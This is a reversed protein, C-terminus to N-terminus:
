QWQFNQQTYYKPSADTIELLRHLGDTWARKGKLTEMSFDSAIRIPKGKYTVQDKVRAAKLKKRQETCKTHKIIIHQPSYTIKKKTNEISRSGQYIDRLSRLCSKKTYCSQSGPIQKTSWAPQGQVWLSRGAEAERANPNFAYVAM